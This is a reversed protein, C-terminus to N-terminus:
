TPPDIGLFRLIRDALSRVVRAPEDVPVSAAPQPATSAAQAIVPEAPAADYTPKRYSPRPPPPVSARRTAPRAVDGSVVARSAPEAWGPPPASTQRSGFTIERTRVTVNGSTLAGIAGTLKALEDRLEERSLAQNEDLKVLGQQMQALTGRTQVLEAQLLQTERELKSFRQELMGNLTSLPLRVWQEGTSTM